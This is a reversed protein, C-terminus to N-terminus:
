RDKEKPAKPSLLLLIVQNAPPHFLPADSVAAEGETLLATVAVEEASSAVPTATTNVDTLM